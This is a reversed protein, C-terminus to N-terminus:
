YAPTQRTQALLESPVNPEAGHLPRWSHGLDPSEIASLDTGDRASLVIRRGLQTLTPAGCMGSSPKWCVSPTSEPGSPVGSLDTSRTRIQPADVSGAYAFLVSQETTLVAYSEVDRAVLERECSGGDRPCYIAWLQHRVDLASALMGRPVCLRRVRDRGRDDADIPAGLALAVPAAAVHGDARLTGLVLAQDTGFAFGSEAGDTCGTLWASASASAPLGAVRSAALRGARSSLVLEDADHQVTLLEPGAQSSLLLTASAAGVTDSHTPGLPPMTEQTGSILTLDPQV